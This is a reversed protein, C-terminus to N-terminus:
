AGKELKLMESLAAVPGSKQSIEKLRAAINNDGGPNPSGEVVQHTPAGVFGFKAKIAEQKQFADKLVETARQELLVKNEPDSVESYLKGRDIFDDVVDLQEGKENKFNKRIESFVSDVATKTKFGKVETEAAKLKGQLEKVMTAMIKAEDAATKQVEMTDLIAPIDKADYGKEKLLKFYTEWESKQKSSTKLGSLETDKEILKRGREGNERAIKTFEEDLQKRLNEDAIGELLEKYAM